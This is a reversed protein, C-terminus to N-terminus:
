ADKRQAKRRARAWMVGSLSVVFWALAGANASRAHSGSVLACGSEGLHDSNQARPTDALLEFPADTRALSQGAVVVIGSGELTAPLPVAADVDADGNRLPLLLAAVREHDAELSLELPAESEVAYYFSGLGAAVEAVAAGPKLPFPTLEVMPYDAAAAYGGSSPARDGTAANFLAFRLHAESLSSDRAQLVGDTTEFVSQEGDLSEFVERLVDADYVQELFVPWIATAYLFSSVVGAPPQDLPRWPSEFFAPLFRELDGLEPYVQKAAWQASGEAWWRDVGADYGDQVLHFLEHPVVTRLGEAVDAYAGGGFDNEVVVYGACRQPSGDECFDHVAQGDASPFNALYVDIAGSDGNSSCPSDGDGLPARYGLEEFKQLADDAAQAAVRVADPVDGQMTDAPEPAHSGALSYHIRARGSASDFFALEATGYSFGASGGLDTPRGECLQARAPATLLLAAALAGLASGARLSKM